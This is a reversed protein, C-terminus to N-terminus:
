KFRYALGVRFIRAYAEPNAISTTAPEYNTFGYAYSGTLGVNGRWITLDGRLRFDLSNDTSRTLDTHWGGNVDSSGEGKERATLVYALEPGVLADLEMKEGRLRWGVGAFASITQTYLHTIGTAARSNSSAGNNYYIYNLKTRSNMWDYGLDFATLLGAKGVRQARVSAGAGWGYKNGFPNTTRSEEGSSSTNYNVTSSSVANTGSFRSYNANARGSFEIQQGFAQGAFLTLPLALLLLKM